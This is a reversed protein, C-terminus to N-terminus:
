VPKLLVNETLPVHEPLAVSLGEPAFVAAVNSPDAAKEAAVVNLMLRVLQVGAVEVDVLM